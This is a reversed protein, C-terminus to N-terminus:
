RAILQSVPCCECNKCHKKFEDIFASLIRSKQPLESYLTNLVTPTKYICTSQGFFPLNFLTNFVLSTVTIIIIIIITITCLYVLQCPEGECRSFSACKSRPSGPSYSITLIFDVIREVIFCM